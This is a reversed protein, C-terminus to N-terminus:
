SKKDDLNKELCQFVQNTDLPTLRVEDPSPAGKANISWRNPTVRIPTKHNCQCYPFCVQFYRGLSKKMLIYFYQPLKLAMDGM